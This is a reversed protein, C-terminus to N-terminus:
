PAPTCPPGKRVEGEGNEGKRWEGGKEVGERGGTGREDLSQSMDMYLKTSFSWDHSLVGSSLPVGASDEWCTQSMQITM